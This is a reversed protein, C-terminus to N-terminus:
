LRRGDAFAIRADRGAGGPPIALAIWITAAGDLAPAHEPWEVLVIADAREFLGLEDVERESSLRYLDAHVIPGHPGDYPQVLAFSPSPVDLAANNMLSRIIARALTTKAVGLDGSLLVLDGPVLVTAIRRGLDATAADDALHLSQSANAEAM